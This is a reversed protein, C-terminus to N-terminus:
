TSTATALMAYADRVAPRRAGKPSAKSLATVANRRVTHTRRHAAPLQELVSMVHQAGADADGEQILTTARYMEVQAPGLVSKSTYSALAEDQAARARQHEGTHAYVFSASHHLRQVSWGLQSDEDDRIRDPLRDFVRQLEILASRAETHRGTQALAQAKTGYAGALGACPANAALAIAEDALQLVSQELGNDSLGYVAQRERALSALLPDGSEDSARVATRWWRRASRVDGLGTLSIATFISLLAASHILSTRVGEAARSILLDLETLDALLEPLVQEPPLYGAEHAYDYVVREWTDADRGTAETTLTGTLTARLHEADRGLPVAVATTALLGLLARRKVDDDEQDHDPEYTSSAEKVEGTSFLESPDLKFAKAYAPAWDRPFNRGKEWDYIQRALNAVNGRELGDARLLQRAM